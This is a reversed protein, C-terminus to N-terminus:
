GLLARVQDPSLNAQARKAEAPVAAVLGSPAPSEPAQEAANRTDPRADPATRGPGAVLAEIRDLVVTRAIWLQCYSRAAEALAAIIRQVMLELEAQEAASAMRSAAQRAESLQASIQELWLLRQELRADHRVVARIQDIARLLQARGSAITHPDPPACRKM